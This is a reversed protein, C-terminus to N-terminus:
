LWCVDDRGETGGADMRIAGKMELRIPVQPFEWRLLLTWVM